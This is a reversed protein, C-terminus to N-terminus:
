MDMICYIYLVVHAQKHAHKAKGSSTHSLCIFFFAYWTIRTYVQAYENANTNNMEPVPCFNFMRKYDGEHNIQNTWVLICCKTYLVVDFM